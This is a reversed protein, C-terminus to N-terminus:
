VEEVLADLEVYIQNLKEATVVLDIITDNVVRTARDICEIDISTKNSARPNHFDCVIRALKMKIVHAYTDLCECLDQQMDRIDEAADAVVMRCKAPDNVILNKATM